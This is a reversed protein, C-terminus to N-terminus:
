TGDLSMTTRNGNADVVADIRNKSDALDRFANTTGGGGSAKGFLAANQLRTVEKLSFVSAGSLDIIGDFINSVGSQSIKYVNSVGAITVGGLTGKATATFDNVRYALSVGGVTVGALNTKAQAAFDNVTVGSTINGVTSVTLVNSVGAVTVGGLTGKATSTFDNVRYALSVGGVTVGALNSKAQSSFDNITVGSSVSGVKVVNSVGAISVGSWGGSVFIDYMTGHMIFVDEWVPLFDPTSSTFHLRGFGATALSTGTMEMMYYGNGAHTWNRPSVNVSTGGQQFKCANASGGAASVEGVVLDTIATTGSNAYPFPGVQITTGTSQKIIQM